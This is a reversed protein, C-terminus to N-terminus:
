LTKLLDESLYFLQKKRVYVAPTKLLVLEGDVYALTTNSVIRVKRGDAMVFDLVAEGFEDKSIGCDLGELVETHPKYYSPTLDRVSKGLGSVACLYDNLETNRVFGAPRQGRPNYVALIVDEATHNGSIYSVHTAETMVESVARQLNRTNSIEMYDQERKGQLEMLERNREDSVQIGTYKYITDKMASPAVGDLKNVLMSATMRYTPLAGLADSLPRESYHRYGPDGFSVGSTGHDCTVIVTTNGDARAFDLAVKVAEDFSLIESVIGAPDHAHAAFDIKSGEVMLFFGKRNRSLTKIAKATMEALSPEEEGREIDYSMDDSALIAWLQDDEAERYADFDKEILRIGRADLVRRTKDYIHKAGGGVVYDCISAMQSSIIEYQGREIAHAFTAAPTAHYYTTTVVAGISKGKERKLAEAVDVLPQYMRSSDCPYMENGRLVPYMGINPSEVLEGCMLTTMSGASGAIPSNLHCPRMLGCIYPDLNLNEDMSGVYQKYWRALSVSGSSCGDALMFIVNRTPKVEETRCCSTVMALVAASVIVIRKLMIMDNKIVM